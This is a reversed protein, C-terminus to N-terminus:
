TGNWLWPSATTWAFHRSAMRAAFAPDSVSMQFLHVTLIEVESFFRPLLLFEKANRM